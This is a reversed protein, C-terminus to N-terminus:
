LGAMGKIRSLDDQVEKIHKRVEKIEKSFTTAAATVIVQMKRMEAKEEPAMGAVVSGALSATVSGVDSMQESGADSGPGQSVGRGPWREELGDSGLSMPAAVAEERLTKVQSKLERIQKNFNAGAAAVLAKVKHLEAGFNIDLAQVQKEPKGVEDPRALQQLEEQIAEVKEQLSQHNSEAQTVAEILRSEMTSLQKVADDGGSVGAKDVRASLAQWQSMTPVSNADAKKQLTTSIEQLRVLTSVANQENRRAVEVAVTERLDQGVLSQLEQLKQQQHETTSQLSRLFPSVHHEFYEMCLGRVAVSLDVTARHHEDDDGDGIFFNGDHDPKSYWEALTRSRDKYVKGADVPEEQGNKPAHNEAAGTPHDEKHHAHAMPVPLSPQTWAPSGGKGYGYMPRAMYMLQPSMGAPPHGGKAQQPQGQHITHNAWM